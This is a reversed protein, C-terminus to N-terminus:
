YLCDSCCNYCCKFCCCCGYLQGCCGSSSVTCFWCCNCCSIRTGSCWSSSRGTGTTSIGGGGSSICCSCGICGCCGVSCGSWVGRYCSGFLSGARFDMNVHLRVVLLLAVGIFLLLVWPVMRWLKANM